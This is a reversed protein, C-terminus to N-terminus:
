HTIGPWENLKAVLVTMDDHVKNKALSKAQKLLSDAIQQPDNSDTRRLFNAIWNEKDVSRRAEAVGDSVMVIIDGAVLSSKIPRIEIQQLIGIPPSVSSITAVERVRKVFSPASGVKLFETEGSYLDIVAMDITAFTEEPMQLLLLSNVTKVAVDVDFGVALLKQLFRVAASSEAAAKHGSGMGDSLMLAVKGQNIPVVACTDGCAEQPVKAASAMGTEIIYRNAARMTLKCKRQQARNGCEAHLILKEQLLKAALPLITNVCERNGPCCDKEAHVSVAGKTGTISVNDLPCDILAAKTKLSAAMGEDIVPPKAIEQALNDLINATCRLQETIMQRSEMIKKQWFSQQLNKKAVANLTDVLERRKICTEALPSAMANVTLVEVEARALMEVTAQYTRYFDKEWCTHCRSCSSCLQEGLLTLMRALDDKKIRDQTHASITGFTEALDSFTQAINVIKSLAPELAQERALPSPTSYGIISDWRKVVMAPLLLFAAAGGGTETILVGLQGANGFCLVTILSGLVFGFIVALKGLPRFSGALLGAVAFLAIALPGSGESLGVVLGVVVGIVTGLGAGGNYSLTTVALSGTVTRLSFSGVRLDGIGAIAAGLLVVLCIMNEYNVQLAERTLVPVGRAFIFASVLCIAANFGALFANYLTVERWLSLALGTVLVCGFMIVPLALPKRSPLKKATLYFYVAITLLYMGAEAFYGASIAGAIAWLGVVPARQPAKKAVAAFFALGFPILEGLLSIRALLFAVLGLLLQEPAAFRSVLKRCNFGSVRWVPKRCTTQITPPAQPLSFNETPLNVVTVKPMLM